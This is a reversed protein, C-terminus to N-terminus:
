TEAQSQQETSRTRDTTGKASSDDMKLRQLMRSLDDVVGRTRMALSVVSKEDRPHDSRKLEDAKYVGLNESADNEPDTLRFVGVQKHLEAHVAATNDAIAKLHTHEVKTGTTAIEHGTQVVKMGFEVLQVVNSVLGLSALPDLM